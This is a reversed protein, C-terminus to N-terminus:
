WLAVFFTKGNMRLLSIKYTNYLKTKVRWKEMKKSKLVRSGTSRVDCPSSRVPENGRGDKRGGQSNESDLAHM